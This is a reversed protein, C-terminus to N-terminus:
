VPDSVPAPAPGPAGEPAEAGESGQWWFFAVGVLVLPVLALLWRGHRLRSASSVPGDDRTM